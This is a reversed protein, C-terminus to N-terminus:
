LGAGGCARRLLYEGFGGLVELRLGGGKKVPDRDSRGCVPDGYPFRIESEPRLRSSRRGNEQEVPLETGCSVFRMLVRDLAEFRDLGHLVSRLPPEVKIGGCLPDDNVPKSDYAPLGAHVM